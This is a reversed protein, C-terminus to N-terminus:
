IGRCQSRLGAGDLAAVFQLHPGATAVPDISALGAVADPVYAETVAQDEGSRVSGTEQAASQFISDVGDGDEQDNLFRVGGVACAYIRESELPRQVRALAYNRVEFNAAAGEKGICFHGFSCGADIEGGAGSGSEVKKAALVVEAGFNAIHVNRVGPQCRRIGADVGNLETQTKTQEALFLLRGQVM